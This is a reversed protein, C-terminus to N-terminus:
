LLRSILTRYNGIGLSDSVIVAKLDFTEGHSGSAGKPPQTMPALSSKIEQKLQPNQTAITPPVIKLLTVHPSVAFQNPLTINHLLLTKKIEEKLLDALRQLMAFNDPSKLKIVISKGFQAAANKDVYIGSLPGSTNREINFKQIALQIASDIAPLTNSPMDGIKILTTHFEESDVVTAGTIHLKKLLSLLNSKLFIRTNDWEIPQHLTNQRPIRMVVFVNNLTQQLHENTYPQTYAPARQPTLATSFSSSSSSSSSSPTYIPQTPQQPLAIFYNYGPLLSQQWQELSAKFHSQLARFQQETTPVQQWSTSKWGNLWQEQQAIWKNRYDNWRTYEQQWM